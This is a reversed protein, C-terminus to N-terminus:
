PGQRTFVPSGTPDKNSVWMRLTYMGQKEEMWIREGNSKDEIYSGDSDVIVRHGPKAIKSVSMLSKDVDCLQATLSRM